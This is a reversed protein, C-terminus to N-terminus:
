QRLPHSEFGRYTARCRNELGGRDVVGAGRWYGARMSRLDIPTICITPHTTACPASKEGHRRAPSPDNARRARKEARRDPHPRSLHRTMRRTASEAVSRDPRAHKRPRDPAAVARPIRARSNLSAADKHGRLISPRSHSSCAPGAHDRPPSAQPRMHPPTADSHARM